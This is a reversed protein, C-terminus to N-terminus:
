SLLLSVDYASVRVTTLTIKASILSHNIALRRRLRSLWEVGAPFACSKREAFPCLGSWGIALVSPESMESGRLKRFM